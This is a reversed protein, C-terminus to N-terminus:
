ISQTTKKILVMYISTNSNNRNDNNTDTNKDNRNM